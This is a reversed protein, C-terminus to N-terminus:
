REALRRGVADRPTLSEIESAIDPSLHRPRAWVGFRGLRM